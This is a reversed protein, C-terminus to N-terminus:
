EAIEAQEDPTAETLARGQLDVLTRPNATLHTVAENTVGLVEGTSPDTLVGGKVKKLVGCGLALDIVDRATDFGARIHQGNSTHFFCRTVKADKHGVKTKMIQVLHKEGIIEDGRKVGRKSLGTLNIAARVGPTVVERPRANIQLGRVRAHGGGPLIEVEDGTRLVGCTVTGTVVAGFGEM